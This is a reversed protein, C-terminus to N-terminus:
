SWDFNKVEEPNQSVWWNFWKSRKWANRLSKRNNKGSVYAADAVRKFADDPSINELLVLRSMRLILEAQRDQAIAMENEREQNNGSRTEEHRKLRGSKKLNM